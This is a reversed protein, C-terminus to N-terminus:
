TIVQISNPILFILFTSKKIYAKHGFDPKLHITFKYWNCSNTLRDNTNKLTPLLMATRIKVVPAFSQMKKMNAHL